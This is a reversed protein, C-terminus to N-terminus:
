KKRGLISGTDIVRMCSKRLIEIFIVLLIWRRLAEVVSINV